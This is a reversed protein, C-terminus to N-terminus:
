VLIRTMLQAHGMDFPRKNPKRQLILEWSLSIESLATPTQCDTTSGQGPAPKVWRLSENDSLYKPAHYPKEELKGNSQKSKELNWKKLYTKWWEHRRWAQRLKDDRYAVLVLSTMHSIIYEQNLESATFLRGHQSKSMGLPQSWISSFFLNSLGIMALLVNLNSATTGTM